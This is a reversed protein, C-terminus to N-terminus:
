LQFEAGSLFNEQGTIEGLSIFRIVHFSRNVVDCAFQGTGSIGPLSAARRKQTFEVIAVGWLM